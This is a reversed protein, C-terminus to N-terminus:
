ETTAIGMRKIIAPWVRADNQMLTRLAQPGTPKAPFLTQAVLAQKMENSDLVRAAANSLTNVVNANMKAPGLLGWVAGNDIEPMPYGQEAFTPVESNAARATGSVAIARVKGSQLFPLATAATSMLFDVSGGALDVMAPGSGKYVINVSNLGYKLKLLEPGVHSPMQGMGGSSGYNLGVKSTRSLAILQRLNSASLSTRVYLFVPGTAVASIPAFDTQGNYPPKRVMAPQIAFTATLENFLLTYGDAPADKVYTTGIVGQAGPKNEVVFSQKLERQMGLAFQRAVADTPGGAAFPVVLRVPQSPYTEAHAFAPAFVGAIVIRRNLM